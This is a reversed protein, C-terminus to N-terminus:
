FIQKCYTVHLKNNLGLIKKAGKPAVFLSFYCRLFVYREIRRKEHIFLEGHFVARGFLFPSLSSIVTFRM